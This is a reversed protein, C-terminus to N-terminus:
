TPNTLKKEKPILPQKANAVDVGTDTNGKKTRTFNM